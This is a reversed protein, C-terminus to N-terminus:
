WVTSWAGPRITENLKGDIQEDTYDGLARGFANSIQETTLGTNFVEALDIM